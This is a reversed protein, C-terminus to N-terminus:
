QMYWEMETLDSRDGLWHFRLHITIWKHSIFKPGYSIMNYRYLDTVETILTYNTNNAVLGPHM